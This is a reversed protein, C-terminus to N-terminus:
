QEQSAQFAEIAKIIDANKVSGEVECGIKAALELLEAKTMKALPKSEPTTAPGEKAEVKYGRAEFWIILNPDDTEGVGENFAVGARIGTFAKVPAYIKPM